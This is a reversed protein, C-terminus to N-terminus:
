LATEVSINCLQHKVLISKERLKFNAVANAGLLAVNVLNESNLNRAEKALKDVIENGTVDVHALLWQIFCVLEQLRFLHSCIEETIGSGGAQELIPHTEYLDEIIVRLECTFCSAIAGAGIVQQCTVDSPTVFLYERVEM